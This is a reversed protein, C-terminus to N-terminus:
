TCLTPSLSSQTFAQGTTWNRTSSGRLKELDRARLERLAQHLSIAVSSNEIEKGLVKQYILQAAESASGDNIEWISAIVNRYGAALFTGALQIGEDVLDDVGVRSTSCASLYALFPPDMHLKKEILDEITVAGDRVLLGSLLPDNEDAKAHGAFHFIDCEIIRQLVEAKTPTLLTHVKSTDTSLLGSIFEVEKKVAALIRMKTDAASVVVVTSGQQDQRSLVTRTSHQYAYEVFKISPSYSSMVRDLATRRSGDLHHGAAHVPQHSLFGTPVWCIRPWDAWRGEQGPENIGLSDLIPIIVLDWLWEFLHYVDRAVLKKPRFKSAYESGKVHLDAPLDIRDIGSRTVVFADSRFSSVNLVVIFYLTRNNLLARPDNFKLFGEYGPQQRIHEVLKMLDRETGHRTTTRRDVHAAEDELVLLEDKPDLINCLKEYNAALGPHTTKM